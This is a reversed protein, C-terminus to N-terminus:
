DAAATLPPRAGLQWERSLDQARVMRAYHGNHALLSEHTGQEVIRGKDLVVILDAHRITSLRHAIAVTTRQATLRSIAQQILHETETDVSSTAEDLILIPADKLVARAISLRQKQGASLKVGREGILTDYGDALDLIFEEANAARAAAQMDEQSADPRGFLLNQRVTGHFLFVDQLVIAINSRLFNLDLTQVDYGGIRVSGQQPDYFRPILNTATTKGAGTSGVLAVMAGQPVQISVESLIPRGPQYAFSVDQLAIDWAMQAPRLANPPSVIDPQIDLLEFVRESSVAAKQLTDNTNALQLFPQYIQTLYVIFVFLDAASVTGGLAMVGGALAVLVVGVGSTVEIVGVPVFSLTSARLMDDHLRRSRTEIEKAQRREQVFSKIVSVGSLNDQVQATLEELRTRVPRWEKRVRSVSRFVLWSALPLPVLAILALQWNLYFLVSIMATPLVCAITLEPIGHAIFDEISEIDNISRAILSGTRQNHFFRHPLGQLHTYVRVMLSHLVDFSVEHSFRGYGYRGLGRGIYVLLLLLTILALAQPTGGGDTIWQIIRRILLPPILGTGAFLLGCAIALALKRYSGRLMQGLGRLTQM